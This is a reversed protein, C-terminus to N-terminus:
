IWLCIFDYLELKFITSQCKQFYNLEFDINISVVQYYLINSTYIKVALPCLM